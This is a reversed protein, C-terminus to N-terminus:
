LQDGQQRLPLLPLHTEIGEVGMASEDGALHAAKDFEHLLAVQRRVVPIAFRSGTGPNIICLLRVTPISTRRAVAARGGATSRDANNALAASPAALHRAAGRRPCLAAHHAPLPLRAHW